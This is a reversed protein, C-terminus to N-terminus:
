ARATPRSSMRTVITTSAPWLSCGRATRRGRPCLHFPMGTKVEKANSGDADALYLRYGPDEFASRKGDPSISRGHVLNKIFESKKEEAPTQKTAKGGALDVLYIDHGVGDGT